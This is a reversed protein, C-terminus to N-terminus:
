DEWEDLLKEVLQALKSTEPQKMAVELAWADEIRADQLMVDRVSERLKLSIRIGDKAMERLAVLANKPDELRSLGAVAIAYTASDPRQPSDPRCLWRVVSAAERPRRCSLLHGLLPTALPLPSPRLPHHRMATLLAFAPTLTPMSALHAALPSFPIRETSGPLLLAASLLRGAAPVRGSSILRPLLASITDLESPSLPEPPPKSTPTATCMGRLVAGAPPPALRLPLRPLM